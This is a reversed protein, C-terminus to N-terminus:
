GLCANEQGPEAKTQVIAEVKAEVQKRSHGVLVWEGGQLNVQVPSLGKSELPVSLHAICAPMASEGPARQGVVFKHGSWWMSIRPDGEKVYQIRSNCAEASLVYDGDVCM